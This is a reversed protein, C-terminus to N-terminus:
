LFLVLVSISAAYISHNSNVFLIIEYIDGEGIEAGETGEIGISKKPVAKAKIDKEEPNTEQGKLM